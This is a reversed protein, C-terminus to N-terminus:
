SGARGPIRVRDLAEPRKELADSVAATKLASNLNACPSLRWLIMSTWRVDTTASRVRALPRRRRRDTHGVRVCETSVDPRGIPYRIPPSPPDVRERIQTGPEGTSSVDRWRRIRPLPPRPAARPEGARRDRAPDRRTPEPPACRARRPSRDSTMVGEAARCGHAGGLPRSPGGPAAVIRGTLPFTSSAAFGITVPSIRSNM